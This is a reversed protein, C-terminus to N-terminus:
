AALVVTVMKKKERVYTEAAASFKPLCQKNHKAFTEVCRRLTKTQSAHNDLTVCTLSVFDINESLTCCTKQEHLLLM